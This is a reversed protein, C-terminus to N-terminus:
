KAKFLSHGEFWKIRERGIDFVCQVYKNLRSYKIFCVGNPM